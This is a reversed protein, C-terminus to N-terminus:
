TFILIPPNTNLLWTILSFRFGVHFSIYSTLCMRYLVEHERINRQLNKLRNTIWLHNQTPVMVLVDLKFCEILIQVRVVEQPPSKRELEQDIFLSFTRNHFFFFNWQLTQTKPVFKGHNSRWFCLVVTSMSLNNQKFNKPVFFPQNLWINPLIKDYEKWNKNNLAKALM